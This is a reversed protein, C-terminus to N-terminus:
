ALGRRQRAQLALAVVVFSVALQLFGLAAVDSSNGNQWLDFVAVPLVITRSTYLLISSSVEQMAMIFLVLWAALLSPQVLPLTVRRMTRTWSAGSM